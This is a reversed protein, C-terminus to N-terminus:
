SNFAKEVEVNLAIFNSPVAVFQRARDLPDNVKVSLKRGGSANTVLKGTAKLYEIGRVPNEQLRATLYAEGVCVVEQDGQPFLFPESEPDDPDPRLGIALREDRSAWRREGLIELVALALQEARSQPTASKTAGLRGLIQAVAKDEGGVPKNAPTASTQIQASAPSRWFDFCVAAADLADQGSWPTTGLVASLYGSAGVLAFVKRARKELDNLGKGAIVALAKAYADRCMERWDSQGLMRRLSDEYAWGYHARVGAILDDVLAASDADDDAGYFIGHKTEGTPINIWRADAGQNPRRLRPDDPRHERTALLLAQFRQGSKVKANLRRTRENGILHALTEDGQMDSKSNKEDFFAPRGSLTLLRDEVGARTVNWDEIDDPHGIVSRATGLLSTKGTSTRGVYCICFGPVDLAIKPLTSLAASVAFIILPYQRQRAMVGQWGALSGNRKLDYARLQNPLILRAPNAGIVLDDLLFTDDDQLGQQEVYRMTPLVDRVDGYMENLFKDASTAMACWWGADRLLATAKGQALDKLPVAVGVHTGLAQSFFVFLADMGRGDPHVLKAVPKIADGIIEKKSPGKAPREVRLTANITTAYIIAQPADRFAAHLEPPTLM